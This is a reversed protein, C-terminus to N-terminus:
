STYGIQEYVLKVTRNYALGFTLGTLTKGNIPTHFIAGVNNVNFRTRSERESIISGVPEHSDSTTRIINLSPSFSFESRRYMAIGAPNIDMSSADAGLSTFAGGMAATRATGFSTNYESIRMIESLSQANLTGFTALVFLGSLFYKAKM